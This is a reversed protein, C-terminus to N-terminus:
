TDAEIGMITIECDTNASADGAIIDGAGLRIQQANNCTEVSAGATISVDKGGFHRATGGSKKLYINTTHVLGVNTINISTIYAYKSTPVTYLTSTSSTTLTSQYLIGRVTAM